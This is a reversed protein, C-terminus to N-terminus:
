IIGERLSERLISRILKSISVSKRDSAEKLHKKMKATLYVVTRHVKPKKTENKKSMAM